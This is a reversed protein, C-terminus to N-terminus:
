PFSILNNFYCQYISIHCTLCSLLIIFIYACLVSFLLRTCYFICHLAIYKRQTLVLSLILMNYLSIYLTTSHFYPFIYTVYIFVSNFFYIVLPIFRFVLLIFFIFKIYLYLFIFKALFMCMVFICM